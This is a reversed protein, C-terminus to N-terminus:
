LCLLRERWEVRVQPLLKTDDSVEAGEGFAAISSAFVFRPRGGIERCTQLLSATGPLGAPFILPPPYLRRPDASVLRFAGVTRVGM